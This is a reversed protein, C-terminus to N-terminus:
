LEIQTGLELVRDRPLRFFETASRENRAMIAFLKERWIAMGPRPTAFLTERGLFYTTEAPKIVLELAKAQALAGPIDPTEMFGYHIVLCYFEDAPRELALRESMPVYPIDETLVSLLVVREHLVKNHKLNLFLAVPTSNVYRTM